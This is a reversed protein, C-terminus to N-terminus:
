SSNITDSSVPVHSLAFSVFSDRLTDNDFFGLPIIHANMSPHALFLHQSTLAACALTSWDTSFDFESSFERVGSPSLEITREGLATRNCTALLGQMFRKRRRASILPGILPLSSWGFRQISTTYYNFWALHDELSLTYHVLM